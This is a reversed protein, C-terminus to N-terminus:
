VDPSETQDPVPPTESRRMRLLIVLATFDYVAHAIIAPLLNGTFLFLWGLYAGMLTALVTYAITIAHCLGFLISALALALAASGTWSVAAQQFVGRFLMEEGFGALVSIGALDLLTCPAMLPRVVQDCFRQITKLPGIPWRVCAFFLAFLPTTGVLGILADQWSWFFWELPATGAVWGAVWALGILGGEVAIALGVISRPNPSAEEGERM